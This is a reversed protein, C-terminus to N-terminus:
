LAREIQVTVPSYVNRDAVVIFLMNNVSKVVTKRSEGESTTTLVTYNGEFPVRWSMEGRGFGATQFSVKQEADRTLATIPWRSHVLYYVNELPEQTSDPSDKLTITPQEVTPDLFVYLSGQSHRQGQIGQSKSFDVAKFTAQDFRVTQLKGRNSIMWGGEDVATIESSFFGEVIKAFHSTTIPIIEQNRAYTLSSLVGNLSPLREGSFMHYYLNIPRIRYPTGTNRWTQPAKNFNYFRGHWNDTYVNENSCSAYIQRQNGVQRAIPRVWGYSPYETDFRSNGGNLNTIGTAAVAAVAAEFPACDGSWLYVKARKGPPALENIFNISGRTELELNFPRNAYARPLDYGAELVKPYLAYNTQSKGFLFNWRRKIVPWFGTYEWGGNPYDALFPVEKSPEYNKFFEWEFPHSYTHVAVEVYPLEFIKRATERAEPFGAWNTDMDAAIPGVSCPLDNFRQLIAQNIVEACLLKASRYEKVFTRSIWGDGDIHSYYLRRGALTTTDPKPMGTDGMALRFFLFPDIYWFRYADNGSGDWYMEYDEAVYSGHPSIAILVSSDSNDREFKLLVQTTNDLVKLDRYVPRVGDYHREFNILGPMDTVIKGAYSANIMEGEDYLGLRKWFANITELPVNSDYPYDPYFGPAGLLIFKKGSDMVRSAWQMYHGVDKVQAGRTLWSLVGVVDQRESIDPLKKAIDHYELRYGLHNLPMEAFQFAPTDKLDPTEVSNYLGILTRPIPTAATLVEVCLLLLGIAIRFKM